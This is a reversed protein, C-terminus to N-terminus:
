QIQIVMRALFWVSPSSLPPADKALGQKGWPPTNLIVKSRWEGAYGCMENESETSMGTDARVRSMGPSALEKISAIM